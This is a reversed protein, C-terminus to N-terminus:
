NIAFQQSRGDQWLVEATGNPCFVLSFWYDRGFRHLYAADATSHRCAAPSYRPHTHAKGILNKSPECAVENMYAVYRPSTEEIRAQRAMVILALKGMVEVPEKTRWHALTFTTDKATGYLCVATEEPMAALFLDVMGRAESSDVWRFGYFTSTDYKKVLPVFNPDLNTACGFILILLLLLLLPRGVQRLLKKM